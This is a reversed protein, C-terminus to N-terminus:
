DHCYNIGRSWVRRVILIRELRGGRWGVRSKRWRRRGLMRVWMERRNGMRQPRVRIVRRREGDGDVGKRVRRSV